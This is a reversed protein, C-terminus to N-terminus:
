NRQEVEDRIAAIAALANARLAEVDPRELSISDHLDLMTSEVAESLEHGNKIGSLCLLRELDGNTRPVFAGSFDESPLRAFLNKKDLVVFPTLSRYDSATSIVVELLGLVLGLIKKAGSLDGHMVPTNAVKIIEDYM